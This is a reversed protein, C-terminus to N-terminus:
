PCTDSKLLELKTLKGSLSYSGYDLILDTSIGNELMLFSAQYLPQEDDKAQEAYYSISVPWASMKALDGADKDPLGEATRKPGIFSIARM